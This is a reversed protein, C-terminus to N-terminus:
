VTNLYYTLLDNLLKLTRGRGETEYTFLVM